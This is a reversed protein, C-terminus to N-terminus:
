RIEFILPLFMDTQNGECNITIGGIIAVKNHPCLGDLDVVSELFELIIDYM